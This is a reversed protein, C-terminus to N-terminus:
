KAADTKVFAPFLPKAGHALEKPWLAVQKGDHWQLVLGTVFGPGVKLSHTYPDDKGYFQERGITGLWDTKELAAVLADADTSKARHIADALYYVADYATFGAYSPSKAFRAKYAAVFPLTKPTMAVNEGAISQFITGEAAGNTESWFTANTSQGSVGALPIPVQGQNWQVVPQVGVHAIGTVILDPKLAQIRNYLPTFDSTDPAFRFHEAVKLGVKPLCEEYAADLPKTWAADESMIVVSKMKFADVLVDKAGACVQGALASSTLYGHFSYKLRDYDKHVNLSITNSAAGPTIMVTKLRASWPQLALVVESVYSAIVANVHDEGVARQFARVAETASSHDDYAVIEIRRGDVGGKANIEDAALQAAGPISAGSIAQAEAIVGIRIPPNEAGSAPSCLMGVMALAPGAGGRVISGM